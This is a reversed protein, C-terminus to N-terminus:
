FANMSGSFDPMPMLVINSREMVPSQAPDDTTVQRLNGAAVFVGITEGPAPQRGALMGWRGADYYWNKAIQCNSGNGFSTCQGMTTIDEAVNGGAAPLDYWVEIVASGYWQGNICEVMGITYQLPGGWGPPTVDPWRNPPEKKAFTLALGGSVFDVETLTTTIPWNTLDPPNSYLTVLSMDLQTPGGPCPLNGADSGSSSGSSGGSSSSADSSGSSSGSSSSATGSSGGSGGSSSGSGGGSSSSGFGGSSSGSSGGSDDGSGSDSGAASGGGGACGSQVAWPLTVVAVMWMGRAMRM